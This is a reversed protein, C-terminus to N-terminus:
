PKTLGTKIKEVTTVDIDFSKALIVDEIGTAFVSLPVSVTGVSASGFTSIATAPLNHNRNYQYHVLGKPFVFM